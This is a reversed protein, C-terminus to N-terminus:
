SLKPNQNNISQSIYLFIKKLRERGTVNCVPDKNPGQLEWGFELLTNQLERTLLTSKKWKPVMKLLFKKAEGFSMPEIIEKIQNVNLIVVGNFNGFDEPKMQKSKKHVRYTHGHISEKVKSKFECLECNFIVGYHEGAKHQKLRNMHSSQFPCLDCNFMVGKHAVNIHTRLASPGHTKFDCESCKRKEIQKKLTHDRLKMYSMESFDCDNCKFRLKTGHENFKHFKLDIHKNM